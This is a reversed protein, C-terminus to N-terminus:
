QVRRSKGGGAIGRIGRGARRRREGECWTHIVVESQLRDNEHCTNKFKPRCIALTGTVAAMSSMECRQFFALGSFMVWLTLLKYRVSKIRGKWVRRKKKKHTYIYTYISPFAPTLAASSDLSCHFQKARSCRQRLRRQAALPSM